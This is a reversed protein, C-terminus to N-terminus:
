VRDALEVLAEIVSAGHVLQPDNHDADVETVSVEAGAHEAAAAVAHSQAPPIISDKTGIVVTLPVNAAAVNDAVPYRDALLLRVPLFPYANQGAAALDTFPSRLLMGAPPEETALRSVVGGGLSEGFYLVRDFGAEGSLYRSAALADQALGDEDPSGPNGGYGRYELLLVTFGEAALGEALPLRSARNGANGPAVLVATDRDQDRPAMLWAALELGDNTHLAVETISSPPKPSDTSPLYILQRQFLWGLAVLLAYVVVVVVIVKITPKIWM